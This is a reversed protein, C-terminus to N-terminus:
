LWGGSHVSRRLERFLNLLQIQSTGEYITTARGDRLRKAAPWDGDVGRWGYLQALENSARVALESAMYKAAATEQSCPRGADLLDAARWMLHRVAQVEAYARGLTQQVDSKSVLPVDPVVRRQELWPLADRLGGVVVGLIVAAGGFRIFDLTETLIHEAQGVEGILHMSELEVDHFQVTPTPVCRFGIKDTNPGVEVQPGKPVAFFSLGQLGGNIETQALVLFVEAVTGMGVMCKTGSLEWGSTTRRALTQVGLLNSGSVEPETLCLSAYGGRQLLERVFRQRQEERGAFLVPRLAGHNFGMTFATPACVAALEEGGVCLSRFSMGQGGDEPPFCINLFGQERAAAHVEEPFRNEDDQARVWPRIEREAFDRCREKWALEEPSLLSWM